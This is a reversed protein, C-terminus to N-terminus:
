PVSEQALPPGTGKHLGHNTKEWYFPKYFLQLFGKWAAISMLAWYIPTLLAYKVLEYYERRLCGAVNIYTFVFNGVYLGLAGILWVVGPFLQEILGWKTLFWLLTMVWYLPNILFSFFTGGVVMQFSFFGYPGLAKWLSIPHRMRVLWTQVYGKVWRSRQRIWNYLASNAEEYTTSDIVATKWGRSSIRLGLDADETVNFPDWAGLERLQHVKFHNSTGGLPIPANSADLGPLLLDFWVSYEATFWGTLTNQSRNFYNLKAQICALNPDSRFALIAKKLQDPDPVDEADYIVLYEGKAHILGYNCAKPKGKPLGDPVVVVQFHDPLKLETAARITEEDDQELLLKVDLKTKPYDLGGIGTVLDPLVEAERYMPVLITYIPLEREELADVQEQTLPIELTNNLARYILFFKYGSLTVMIATFLAIIGQLFLLYNWAMLAGALFLLGIFLFKQGDSLVRFASDDPSRSMLESAAKDLYETGYIADLSRRLDAETTLVLELQRESRAAIDAQVSADPPEVAAVTITEEDSAVPLLLSERELEEPLLRAAEPEVMETDLEFFPIGSDDSMFTYLEDRSVLDLSVLATGLRVGTHDALEVGQDLEAKTILGAEVLKDGIHPRGVTRRIADEIQRRSSVKGVVQRGLAQTVEELAPGFPNALAVHVGAEDQRYPLAGLERARAEGLEAAIKEDVPDVTRLRTVEQGLPGLVTDTAERLAVSVRQLGTFAAIEAVLRDPHVARSALLAM